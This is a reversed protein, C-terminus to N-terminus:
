HKTSVILNKFYKKTENKEISFPFMTALGGANHKSGGACHFNPFIEWMRM